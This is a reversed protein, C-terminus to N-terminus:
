RAQRSHATTCRSSIAPLDALEIVHGQACVSLREVLNELERVNGPWDYRELRRMVASTVPREERATGSITSSLAIDARRERLPAPSRCVHLRYYLDQRFRGVVLEALDHNTAAV